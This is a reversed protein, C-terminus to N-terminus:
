FPQPFKNLIQLQYKSCQPFKFFNPFQYKYFHPIKNIKPIQYTYYRLAPLAFASGVAWGTRRPSLMLMLLRTRRFLPLIIWRLPTM